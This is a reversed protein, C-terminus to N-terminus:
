FPLDDEQPEAATEQTQEKSCKWSTLSTYYRGQYENTRINFEVEASDGVKNYKLFNELHELHDAGKYMEFSYFNNYQEASTLQYSLSKAGNDHQKVESISTIEGKVKYSM